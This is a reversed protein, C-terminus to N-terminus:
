QSNHIAITALVMCTNAYSATYSGRLQQIRYRLDEEISRLQLNDELPDNWRQEISNLDRQLHSLTHRVGSHSWSSEVVAVDASFATANPAGAPSLTTATNAFPHTQAM